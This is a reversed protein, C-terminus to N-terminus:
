QQLEKYHPLGKQESTRRPCTFRGFCVVILILFRVLCYLRMVQTLTVQRGYFHLAGLMYVSDRCSLATNMALVAIELEAVVILEDSDFAQAMLEQAQRVGEFSRRVQAM